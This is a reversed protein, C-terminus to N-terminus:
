EKLYKNIAVALYPIIHAHYRGRIPILRCTVAIPPGGCGSAASMMPDSRDEGRVAMQM